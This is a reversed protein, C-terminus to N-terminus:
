VGFGLCTATNWPAPWSAVTTAIPRPETENTFTTLARSGIKVAKMPTATVLTARGHCTIIRM